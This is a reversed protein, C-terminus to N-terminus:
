NNLNKKDCNTLIEGDKWLNVRDKKDPTGVSDVIFFRRETGESGQWQILFPKDKAEKLKVPPGACTYLLILFLLRM